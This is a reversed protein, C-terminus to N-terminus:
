TYVGDNVRQIVMTSKGWFRAESSSACDTTLKLQYFMALQCSVLFCLKPDQLRNNCLLSSSPFPSLPLSSSSCSLTTKCFWARHHETSIGEVILQMWNITSIGKVWLGSTIGKSEVFQVLHILGVFDHWEFITCTCGSDLVVLLDDSTIPAMGKSYNSHVLAFLM